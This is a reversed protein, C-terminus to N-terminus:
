KSDDHLHLRQVSYNLVEKLKLYLAHLVIVNLSLTQIEQSSQLSFSFASIGNSKRQARFLSRRNRMKISRMRHKQWRTISFVVLSDVTM